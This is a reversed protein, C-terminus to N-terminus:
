GLLSFITTFFIILSSKNLYKRLHKLALSLQNEVSRNSIGLNESIEVISLQEFRSMHFIEKCRPPLYDTALEIEKKLDHWQLQQEAKPPLSLSEILKEQFDTFKTKRILSIAKNRTASFLYTELMTIKTIERNEWIKLFVDQLVDETLGPCRLINFAYGYLRKWYRDYVQNFAVRNGQALLAVLKADPITNRDSGEM